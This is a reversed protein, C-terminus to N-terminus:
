NTYISQTNIVATTCSGKNDTTVQYQGYCFANLHSYQKCTTYELIIDILSKHLTGKKRTWPLIYLLIINHVIYKIDGDIYVIMPRLAMRM